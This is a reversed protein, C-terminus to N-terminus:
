RKPLWRRIPRAAGNDERARAESTMENLLDLAKRSTALMECRMREVEAAPVKIRGSASRRAGSIQGQDVLRKVYAPSVKLLAAAAQTPLYVTPHSM